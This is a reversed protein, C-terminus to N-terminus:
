GSITFQLTGNVPHGDESYVGWEFKYSGSALTPLAVQVEQGSTIANKLELPIGDGDENTLKSHILLVSQDFTLLIDQPAATLIANDTPYSSELTAHAWSNSTFTFNAMLIFLLSAFKKM